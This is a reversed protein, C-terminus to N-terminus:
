PALIMPAGKCTSRLCALKASAKAWANQGCNECTFKRKSQDRTTRKDQPTRKESEGKTNPALQRVREKWDIKFGRGLLEQTTRFFLGEEDIYHSVSRGTRKGGPKGTDSTILGIKEQREAFERDHYARMRGIREPHNSFWYQDLHGMEHVLISLAFTEDLVSLALPNLAIEDTAEGLKDSAFRSGSFYGLVRGRARYTMLAPPLRGGFLRNNYFGYAEILTNATQRTPEPAGLANLSNEHHQHEM